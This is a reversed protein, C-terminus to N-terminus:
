AEQAADFGITRKRKVGLKAFARDFHGPALPVRRAETDGKQIREAIAEFAALRCLEQLQAGTFGNARRAIADIDIGGGNGDAWRRLFVARLPESLPPVEVVVDFRNPRDKLAPEIAGLDNTTAIAIIGEATDLGDLGALFEGLIEEGGGGGRESAVMDFDEFFLITPAFRRAWAFV